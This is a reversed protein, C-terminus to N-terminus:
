ENWTTQYTLTFQYPAEDMEEGFRESPSLEELHEVLEMADEESECIAMLEGTPYIGIDHFDGVDTPTDMDPIKWVLVLEDDSMM